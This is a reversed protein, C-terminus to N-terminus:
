RGHQKQAIRYILRFVKSPLYKVTLYEIKHKFSICDNNVIKGNIEQFTTKWEKIYKGERLLPRLYFRTELKLAILQKNYQETDKKNALFKEIIRVNEVLGHHRKIIAAESANNTLSSEVTRWHYLPEHLYRIDKCQWAMQIIMTLDEGQAETPWYEISNCIERKVLFRWVSQMGKCSIANSLFSIKCNTCINESIHSHVPEDNKFYDCVVADCNYKKATLYMEEMMVPEIWDDSDLNIVYEGTAQQLGTNRAVPLGKNESHSLIKVKGKCEPFESIVSDLLKISNDTTCDNVFIYELGDLTQNFLSKAFDEIYQGVNYVPVIVSVKPM